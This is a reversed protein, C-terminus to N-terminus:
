HRIDIDKWQLGLAEGIRVGTRAMMLVFEYYAPYKELVKAELQHLDKLSFPDVKEKRKSAGGIFKGLSAVSSRKPVRM